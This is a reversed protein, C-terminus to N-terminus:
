HLTPWLSARVTATASHYGTASVAVLCVSRQPRFVELPLPHSNTQLLGVDQIIPVATFNVTNAMAVCLLEEADLAFVLPLKIMTTKSPLMCTASTPATMWRNGSIKRPFYTSSMGWSSMQSAPITTAKFPVWCNVTTFLMICQLCMTLLLVVQLCWLLCRNYFHSKKVYTYTKYWKKMYRVDTTIIQTWEQRDDDGYIEGRYNKTEIAFVGYKSVVVHDIQTTGSNTKLVVDDLVTYGEPLQALINHVQLEGEKGKHEPTNRSVGYIVFGIIALILVVALIM